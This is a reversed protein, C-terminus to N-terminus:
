AGAEDADVLATGLTGRNRPDDSARTRANPPRAQQGSIFGEIGALREGHNTVAKAIEKVDGKIEKLDNSASPRLLAIAGGFIRPALMVFVFAVLGKWLGFARIFDGAGGFSPVGIAGAAAAAETAQDSM